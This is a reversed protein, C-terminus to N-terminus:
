TDERISTPLTIGAQPTKKEPTSATCQICATRAGGDISGCGRMCGQTCLLDPPHAALAGRMLARAAGRM